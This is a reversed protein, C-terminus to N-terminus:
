SPSPIWLCFRHSHRLSQQTVPILRDGTLKELYLSSSDKLLRGTNWATLLSLGAQRRLSESQERCISIAFSCDASFLVQRISDM